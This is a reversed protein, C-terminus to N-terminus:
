CFLQSHILITPGSFQQKVCTYLILAVHTSSAQLGQQTGKSVAAHKEDFLMSQAGLMKIPAISEKVSVAKSSSHLQRHLSGFSM